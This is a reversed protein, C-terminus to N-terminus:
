IDFKLPSCVSMDMYLLKSFLKMRFIEILFYMKRHEFLSLSFKKGIPINVEKLPAIKLIVKHPQACIYKLFTVM